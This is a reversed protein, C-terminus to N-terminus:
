NSAWMVGDTKTDVLRFETVNVSGSVGPSITIITSSTFQSGGSVSINFDPQNGPHLLGTEIVTGNSTTFDLQVNKLSLNVNASFSNVYLQYYGAAPNTETVSASPTSASLFSTFGGLITYLTAALVVTIAVLLITAIIPSVAKDEEIRVPKM